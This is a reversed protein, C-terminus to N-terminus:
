KDLVERVKRALSEVTFPKQIYELGEELIGHLSIANDTYGSMYLVKFDGRVERLKDAVQRGSMGPMVVDTLLLHVPKELGKCIELAGDGDAAELIEYGQRKLIKIALKRVSADDEVLLITENGFPLEKTEKKVRLEEAPEDVRPLYIKFTTGKGVESYVWINGGSQKVIGYVTSLGLGTGKDRGKTTFFPEFIRERVEPTMGVGTDSVSLMMYPGPKVAIHKKAYAKDLEVNSTEITLKGGGPMADRSNVALNMIVQEIQGPDAQTRGLDDSLLTRLEIDEGIMRRLMKELNKILANLDLVKVELIQRRSFALLQRTLGAARDAAENIEKMSGRLPDGEKLEALSLQSYGKIITLLNNFDHAVGGALKGIAEMKQSQRLQEELSKREEDARKLETIDVWSGVIELPNGHSDRLLRLEDHIWVLDGNKHFFRYEHSLYNRNLLDASTALAQDRDEPHLCDSWWNPQLAEEQSYGLLSTINSSMWTPFFSNGEVKLSYIVTPSTSLLHNLRTTTERLAEEAETRIGLEKKLAEFLRANEIAIAAQGALTRFFEVDEDAFVRPEMTMIHLIGIAKDRAVLPVGLYSSLRGNRIRDRHMQVRPDQSLDHIIVPEQREVFWHILSESLNFGEEEIYRGNNLRMIFVETRYEEEFLSIAAADAGLEKPVREVVVKLVERLDLRQIIARDIDRLTQLRSLRERADRLSRVHEIGLTLQEAIVKLARTKDENILDIDKSGVILTGLWREEAEPISLPVSAWAQIGEAKIFEPILKDEDLSEHIVMFEKMWKPAEDLSFSLTKARFSTSFGQSARLLVQSKMVLHISAFEIKLFKVTEDLIKKLLEDMDKISVTSSLIESRSFLEDRQDRILKERKVLEEDRRLLSEAMRDFAKSLGGIEGKSYDIGTRVTLDGQSIKETVKLLRKIPNRILLNGGVLIVFIGISGIICLLLINSLLMRDIEQFALKKPIGVMVYGLISEHGFPTFGFLKNIGDVGMSESTGERKSLVTETIGVEPFSKGVFKEGEPHRFLVVGKNDIITLTTRASLDMKEIFNKAWNLDIGAVLIARIRKESDLAPHALILTPKGTLRGILFDSVTFKHSRIIEKFYPRDSIDIPPPLPDSSAFIKGDKRYAAFGIFEPSKELLDKLIKSSYDSDHNKFHPIQSLAFLVDRGKKIIGNQIDAVSKAIMITDHFVSNRAKERQKMGLYFTIAIAPIIIFFLLIILRVRISTFRFM